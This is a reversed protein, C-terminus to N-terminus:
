YRRYVAVFVRAVERQVNATGVEEPGVAEAEVSEDPL